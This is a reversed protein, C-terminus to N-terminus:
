ALAALQAASLVRMQEDTKEALLKRVREDVTGPTVYDRVTVPRDQGIRHIRRMAQVNRSPKYSKEVFICMDAATLTLGEAVVELSGVIVDLGGGQFHRVIDRRRGRPTSGDIVEVTAGVDRAVQACAQLTDRFHGLVLTPRARGELDAALQDLKGSGREGTLVPLGVCAKQLKVNLAADNWAVVEAGGDTWAVYDKKLAKYVKAQATTMPTHVVQETLPPLDALVDDRLRQLFRDALNQEAFRRFHTCPDTPPRRECGRDCGLLRGVSPLGNSWRTPSTDFWEGAWRWYSALEGKPRTKEPYLLQLPVFLEHAWNPMPTGTALHVQDTLRALRQAAKTWSTSRGKLYHAEDYIQSGWRRDLEPAVRDTPRSGGKETRERGNLRSYATVTADIGPAWKAIEDDWTGSDIVMAPAVVLVPEVAALLLQRTKGLGPEDGLFAHPHQRLWAIGDDQYAYPRTSSGAAAVPSPAAALRIRPM